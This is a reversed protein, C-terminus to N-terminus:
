ATLYYLAPFVTTHKVVEGYVIHRFGKKLKKSYQELAFYEIYRISIEWFEKAILATLNM